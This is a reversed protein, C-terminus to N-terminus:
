RRPPGSLFGGSEKGPRPKGSPNAVAPPLERGSRERFARGRSGGETEGEVERRKMARGLEMLIERAEGALGVGGAEAGGGYSARDCLEILRGARGALESDLTLREAGERAEPPTLVGSARGGAKQFFAALAETVRRAADPGIRGPDLTAALEAALRAPDIGRRSRARRIVVVLTLLGSGAAALLGSGIALILATGTAPTEVVGLDIRSPDLGSPGEVVVPVGPAYRTAFGRSKPDFASVAVPPLVARGGATPRLRYRFTRSPPEGAPDGPPLAQVRFRPSLSSWASLDPARLSGWAAPGSITLRYELTQGARLTAPEAEARVEFAGVGGLFAPTRGSAPVGAVALRIPRSAVSRGGVKLRFPPVELSGARRPVVVFRAVSGGTDEGIERVEADAVAPPEVKAGGAAGAVEVRVEIAQGVLYPGPVARASLGAPDGSLMGLLPVLGLLLVPQKM